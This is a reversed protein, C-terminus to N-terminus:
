PARRPVRADPPPAPPTARLPHRFMVVGFAAALALYAGTVVWTWLAADLSPLAKALALGGATFHLLNGIAVPRSYIGGILNYQATWNLMAYGMCAAGLLQVLVMPAPAPTTGLSRLVVDPAFTAVIGIVGTLVASAIMLLRTGSM